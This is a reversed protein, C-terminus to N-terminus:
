VRGELNKAIDSSMSTRFSRQNFRFARPSDIFEPVGRRWHFRLLRRSFDDLLNLM